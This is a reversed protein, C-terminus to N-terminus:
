YEGMVDQLHSIKGRGDIFVVDYRIGFGDFRRNKEIFIGSTGIIRRQKTSDISYELDSEPISKWAKVEVFVLEKGKTVILDIEGTRCRFNRAVTEYGAEELYAAAADEGRNGKERTSFM